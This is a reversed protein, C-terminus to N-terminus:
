RIIVKNAKIMKDAQILAEDVSVEKTIARHVYYSIIDSIRTYDKLFPRHMGNDLLKKMYTLEPYKNLYISDEYFVSLVPLYGGENHMIEQAEESTLYQLFKFAEEKHQSYQSIMLNWGGFVSGTRKGNFHPLPAKKVYQEINYDHMMNKNDKVFSPWGRLFVGNYTLFYEYCKQERYQSVIQPSVSYKNVLDVLLQLSKKPTESNIDFAPNDFFNIDQGLILEFYSCILGEYDDAPFLYFPNKEKDFYKALEIFEEWSISNKLKSIVKESDPIKSLLDERYYMISIDVYLPLAYLKGDVICSELSYNLFEKYDNQPSLLEIPECWKAFRSAWILDVAFIDIRESKSRLARTLLEKRENTSFKWFPLDIPTVKIAGSHKRNFNDIVKQHTASINDAYFIEIVQKEPTKQTVVTLIYYLILVSITISIIIISTYNTTGTKISSKQNM